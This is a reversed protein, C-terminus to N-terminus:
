HFFIRNMAAETKGEKILVAAELSADVITGRTTYFEETMTWDVTVENTNLWDVIKSMTKLSEAFEIARAAPQTGLGGWNIGWSSGNPSSIKDIFMERDFNAEIAKNLVNITEHTTKM